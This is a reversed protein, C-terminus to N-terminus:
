EEARDLAELVREATVPLDHVRVGIADAVANAVAPAAPTLAPEGIGKAGFPGVGTGSELIIAETTPIDRSTPILYEALTPTQIIGQDVIVDEMLAYGLGQAAGGQIQGEVAVPNISRGVDHCAASKLLTVEGTETDVAVEVAHAGFTFDPFIPGQLNEPDLKVSFPAKFLALNSLPLGEAACMAALDALPLANDPDSKVFARGDALDLDDPDEEFHKSARDVLVERVRSAAQFVANGSMYLQRTATSTGALPTLASDTSYITTDELPVGLVEAAIQCLSNVQGAGLDPVGCRIVVSGDLEVGVWARSTDHFWTIRGYSQMYSAFGQGVKIAGHDPTKEGLAALARTATEELWVASQIQQGTANRDGTKMYNVRRVELPDMGLARAIEDMQQEYAVAAQAAGFGRFASTFPNNTAVSVSDVKLNDVRYPGCSTATAYLLVYPSLYPYAGSNSIMEIEAATIRGSKKVGTRHTIIFPHRKSHAQISEERTYALRVPRRTHKALLALFIEVTVDEKGGFGGGLMTGQIHIKNHPVGVARAISRFHEVVQTCVRINIVDREDIWAVGCEPEIYAHDIFPVTFTNEVVVDAAAFGAEVDGKRIKWRAVVNDPEFVVPAGPQMAELPDFVGPLPEYEVEILELAREAVALTEAAVLAIPEGAFRVRDAAMVPADSGARRKQGTQGPMDTVLKGDPLDEATLVCVVGPLARAKSVDLRKIRASSQSSRFVKGHLMHPMSFDGAYVTAGVTKGLADVRRLPQGVTRLEPLEVHPLPKIEVTM